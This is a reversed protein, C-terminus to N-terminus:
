ITLDKVVEDILREKEENSISSLEVEKAYAQMIGNFLRVFVEFTYGAKKVFNNNYSHLYFEMLNKMFEEVLEEVPMGYQTRIEEGIDPLRDEILWKLRQATKKRGYIQEKKEITELLAKYKSQALHRKVFSTYLFLMLNKLASANAEWSIKYPMNYKKEWLKAFYLLLEKTRFKIEKLELKQESSAKQEKGRRGKRKEDKVDEIKQLEQSLTQQEQPLPKPTDELDDKVVLPELPEQEQTRQLPPRKPDPSWKRMNSRRGSEGAQGGAINKTQIKEKSLGTSVDKSTLINKEEIEKKVEEIHQIKHLVYTNCGVVTCASACSSGWGVDFAQEIRNESLPLKKGSEPNHTSEQGTLCNKAGNPLKKGGTPVYVDEPCNKAELPLKKGNTCASASSGGDSLPLKKGNTPLTCLKQKSQELVRLGADTLRYVLGRGIKEVLGERVLKTLINRAQREKVGLKETDLTFLLGDTESSTIIILLLHETRM